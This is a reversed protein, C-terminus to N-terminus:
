PPSQLLERLMTERHNLFARTIQYHETEEYPTVKMGEDSLVYIIANPYALLIPSHTAIVLQSQQHVLDDILTLASLQRQPSLAAEPEDFIYFGHGTLRNQMLAFFAQGHSQEHLGASGYSVGIEEINTSLNYFSEARLFFGDSAYAAGRELVLHRYLDSHSPRTEFRHNRSGGEPNFGYRAALAEILTSKGSGNEGTLFTVAPHFEMRELDRIAPICYPYEGFDEVEERKLRLGLVFQRSIAM